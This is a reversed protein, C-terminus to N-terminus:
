RASHRDSPMSTAHRVHVDRLRVERRKRALLRDAEAQRGDAVDALRDDLEDDGLPLRVPWVLVEEVEAPPDVRAGQVLAGDLRRTFAPAKSEKPWGRLPSLMTQSSTTSRVSARRRSLSNPTEVRNESELVVAIVSGAGGINSSM